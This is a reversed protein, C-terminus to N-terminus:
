DNVAQDIENFLFSMIGDFSKSIVNSITMGTKSLKNNYDNEQKIYDSAKVKKGSAIDKEFKKVAENTLTNTRKNTYEYYGLAQTIYLATYLILLTFIIIRAINKGKM